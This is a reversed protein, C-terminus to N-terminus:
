EGVRVTRRHMTRITYQPNFSLIDTKRTPVKPNYLIGQFTGSMGTPTQAGVFSTNLASAINDVHTTDWNGSNAMNAVVSGPQHWSGIGWRTAFISTKTLTAASNLPAPSTAVLGLLNYTTKIPALRTSAVKQIWVEDLSITTSSLGPFEGIYKGPAGWDAVMANAFAGYDDPGGLGDLYRFYITNLFRQSQQSYRFTALLVDGSVLNPM